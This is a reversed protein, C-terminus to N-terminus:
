WHKAISMNESKVKDVIEKDIVFKEESESWVPLILFCVVQGSNQSAQTLNHGLFKHNSTISVIELTQVIEWNFHM